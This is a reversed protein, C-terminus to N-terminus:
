DVTLLEEFFAGIERQRDVFHIELTWHRDLGDSSRSRIVTHNAPHIYLSVEDDPIREHPFHGILHGAMTGGFEWGSERALQVVYNYLGSAVVDATTQFYKKAKAFAQEADLRLKRKAADDGLVFTRGFDAEWDEFVPGLDLFVIDDDTIILDPPNEAYPLPTNRGARVIRKHWYTTIGYMEKALSYIDENLRGESINARILGLAEIERFLKEAKAQAARLEVTRLDDADKTSTGGLGMRLLPFRKGICNGLGLGDTTSIRDARSRYLRDDSPNQSLDCRGTYVLKRFTANRPSDFSRLADFDTKPLGQRM